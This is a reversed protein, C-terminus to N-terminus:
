AVMGGTSNNVDGIIDAVYTRTEKFPPIGKYKAVNGPGANYAALALSWSGFQNRWGRLIKAAYKISAVPDRPDVGPHFRPVIQMIGVAGEGSVTEGSIIDPRFHSEQYALRTLLDRPIGNADEAARLTPLWAGARELWSDGAAKAAAAM